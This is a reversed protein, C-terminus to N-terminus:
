LLFINIFLYFSKANNTNSMVILKDMYVGVVVVFVACPRATVPGTPPLETLSCCHGLIYHLIIIPYLYM